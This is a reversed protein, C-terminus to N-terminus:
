LGNLPDFQAKRCNGVSVAAGAGRGGALKKGGGVSGCPPSVKVPISCWM